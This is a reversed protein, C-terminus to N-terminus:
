DEGECGVIKFDERRCGPKGRFKAVLVKYTNRIEEM